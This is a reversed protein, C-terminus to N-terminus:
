ASKQEGSMLDIRGDSPVGILLGGMLWDVSGHLRTPVFRM